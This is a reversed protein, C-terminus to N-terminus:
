PATWGGARRVPRDPSIQYVRALRDLTWAPVAADLGVRAQAPWTDPTSGALSLEIGVMMTWERDTRVGHHFQTHQCPRTRFVGGERARIVLRGRCPDDRVNGLWRTLVANILVSDHGLREGEEIVIRRPGGANEFLALAEPDGLRLLMLARAARAPDDPAHQDSGALWRRDESRTPDLECALGWLAHREAGTRAVSALTILMGASLAPDSEASLLAGIALTERGLRIAAEHEILEEAARLYSAPDSPDLSRLVAEPDFRPAMGLLLVGLVAMALPLTCNM